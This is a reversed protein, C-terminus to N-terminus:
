SKTICTSTALLTLRLAKREASRIQFLSGMSAKKKNEEKVLTSCEQTYDLDCRGNPYGFM